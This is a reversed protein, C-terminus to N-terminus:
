NWVSCIAKQVSGPIVGEDLWSYNNRLTMKLAGIGEVWEGLFVSKKLTVVNSSSRLNRGREQKLILVRTIKIICIGM